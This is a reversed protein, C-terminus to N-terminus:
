IGYFEQLNNEYVFACWVSYAEKETEFYGLHIIKRNLSINAKWKNYTNDWYVGIYKSTLGEKKKKNRNNNSRSCWRLNEIRNDDKVQNIHDIDSLNDPNELFANALLRHIKQTKGKCEKWLRVQLYGQSNPNSKL